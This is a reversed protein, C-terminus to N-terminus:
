ADIYDSLLSICKMCEYFVLGAGVVRGSLIGAIALMKIERCFELFAIWQAITCLWYCRGLFTGLQTARLATSANIARICVKGGGNM